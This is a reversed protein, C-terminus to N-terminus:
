QAGNYKSLINADIQQARVLNESAKAKDGSNSYTLYLNFYADASNPALQVVKNFYILAKDYQGLTGHAVGLLSLTMQDNPDLAIAKELFTIAKTPNNQEMGIKRAYERYTINLNSKAEDDNPLYELVSNYYNISQEYDKKFFYANGLLRFADFSKPHIELAKKLYQIAKNM